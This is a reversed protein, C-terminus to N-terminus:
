RLHHCAQRCPILRYSQHLPGVVASVEVTQSCSLSPASSYVGAYVYVSVHQTYYPFTLSQSPLVPSFSRMGAGAGSKTTNGGSDDRSRRPTDRAFRRAIPTNTTASTSMDNEVEVPVSDEDDSDWESDELEESVHSELDSLLTPDSTSHTPAPSPVAPTMRDCLYLHDTLSALSM